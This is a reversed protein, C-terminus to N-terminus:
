QKQIEPFEPPEVIIITDDEVHKGFPHPCLYATTSSVIV